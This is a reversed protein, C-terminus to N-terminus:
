TVHRNGHCSNSPVVHVHSYYSTLNLSNTKSLPPASQQSSTVLQQQQRSASGLPVVIGKM